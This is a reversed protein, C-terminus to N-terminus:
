QLYANGDIKKDLISWAMEIPNLDPSKAPWDLVNLKMQKMKTTVIHSTHWPALDQQFILKAKDQFKNMSRKLENSLVECYVSGNMNENFIRPETTGRGSIGGWIGLKDGRGTNVQQICDPHLREEDTRWIKVQNIRVRDNMNVLNVSLKWPFPSKSADIPIQYRKTSRHNILKINSIESNVILEILDNEKIDGDYGAYGKQNSGNLFTQTTCQGWDYISPSDYSKPAM